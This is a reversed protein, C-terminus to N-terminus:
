DGLLESVVKWEPNRDCITKIIALIPIALLVGWLNWMWGFFLIGVFAATANMRSTRSALWTSFVMGVLTAVVITSGAVVFATTWDGFQVFAAILSAAAVIAPGFYPATHLVGAAVGWLGAYEMDLWRFALWVGIGVLINGILLVGLYARIQREIEDITRLADKQESLRDGAIAMIKRKFLDGSALMFFVMFLVVMVQSSAIMVAKWVSTLVQWTSLAPQPPPPPASAPASTPNTIREVEAAAKKVEAVPNGPKQSMKQISRSVTKAAAPAKEWIAAIDDSWAWAAAGGMAVLSLVVLAAAIARHRVVVTLATVLPSLAYSIMLAVLLPVFFPEGWYLVLIVAVTALVMLSRSGAM